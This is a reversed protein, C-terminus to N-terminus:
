KHGKKEVKSIRASLQKVQSELVSVSSFISARRKIEEIDEILPQLEPILNKRFSNRRSELEERLERMDDQYEAIKRMRWSIANHIHENTMSKTEVSM